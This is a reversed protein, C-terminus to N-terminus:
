SIRPPERLLSLDPDRLLLMFVVSVECGFPGKIVAHARPRVWVSLDSRCGYSHIRSIRLLANGQERGRSGLGTWARSPNSKIPADPDSLDTYHKISTLAPSGTRWIHQRTEHHGENSVRGWDLFWWQFSSGGSLSDVSNMSPECLGLRRPDKVLYAKGYAKWM